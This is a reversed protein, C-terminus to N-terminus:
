GLAQQLLRPLGGNGMQPRRLQQHRAAESLQGIQVLAYILSLELLDRQARSGGLREHTAMIPVLQNVMPQWDARAFAVFAAAVAAVIDGAFGRPNNRLKDLEQETGAIAQAIAAHADAFSIGPKGFHSAAYTSAIQWLDARRAQGAIEARLLIAVLDTMINIPPAVSVEPLIDQDVIQWVREVDGAELAWLAEHWALHCHLLGARDYDQRWHEVAVRGAGAEGCEYYIHARHHVANANNPNVALSREIFVEAQDLQGVEALAFAYQSEFWWDGVYHPALPAMFALNEAERGARGSFGILGFVGCCPQMAMVDRPFEQAHQQILEYAVAGKGDILQGMIEVHAQERRSVGGILARAQQMAARAEQPRAVIQLARALDAQAIALGADAAVAMQLQEIGGPQAALLLDLGQRYHEVATESSTSLENDLRDKLTV